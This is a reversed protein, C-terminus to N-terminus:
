ENEESEQRNLGCIGKYPCYTCANDEAAYPFDGSEFANKILNIKNDMLKKIEDNIHVTITDPNRLYRYECREVEVGEQKAFLYAYLVVQFCTDIDEDINRFDKYTKYDVIIYKGNELKEIRDVRGGFKLGSEHVIPGIKEESSYVYNHPDSEFGVQAMRLYDNKLNNIGESHIPSVKKLYNDFKNNANLLFEDNSWKPNSGYDEMCEHVLEGVVNSPFINFPDFEEPENLGLVYRLYFRRPCEFFKEAASPSIEKTYKLPMTQYDKFTEVNLDKGALYEDGLYRSRSLDTEFYHHQKGIKKNLDDINANLGVEKQYIEFLMSSPNDEKLDTLNYGSYSLHIKFDFGSAIDIVDLLLKKKSAIIKDSTPANEEKFRKLDSDLLLYNEKPSGPFNSASLGTIFLHKRYISLGDSLNAVCIKGAKSSEKLVKLDVIDEYLDLPSADKINTLYDDILKTIKNKGNIDLANLFEDERLKTYNDIIYSYGKALEKAIKTVLDYFSLDDKFTSKYDELLKTNLTTGIRLYGVAKLLELKKSDKLEADLINSWFKEGDFEKANILNILYEVSCYNKDWLTLLEYVGFANSYSIPYGCSFSMPLHYLNKYNILENIYSNDNIIILVDDYKIKKDNIYSLINEIENISGYSNDYSINELPKIKKDALELLDVKKYNCASVTEILKEDLPTLEEQKLTCFSADFSYGKNIVLNIEDYIDHLDNEKLYKKYKRYINLLATNKEKFEGDSLVKELKEFEDGKCLSRAVNLQKTINKADSLTKSSFYDEDKLLDYIICVQKFNDIPKTTLVIGNRILVEKVLRSANLVCVNFLDKGNLSLSRTLEKENLNSFIITEKLNM